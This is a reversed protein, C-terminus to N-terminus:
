RAFGLRFPRAHPCCYKREAIQAVRDLPGRTGRGSVSRVPGDIEPLTAPVEARPPSPTASANADRTRFFGEFFGQRFGMSVCENQREIYRILFLNITPVVCPM